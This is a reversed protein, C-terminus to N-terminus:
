SWRARRTSRPTYVDRHARRRCAGPGPRPHRRLVARCRGRSRCRAPGDPDALRTLRVSATLRDIAVLDFRRAWRRASARVAEVALRAGGAPALDLRARSSPSRTPRPRAWRPCDARPSHLPLPATVAAPRIPAARFCRRSRSPPSRLPQRVPAYAPPAPSRRRTAAGIDTSTAVFPTTCPRRTGPWLREYAAVRDYFAQAM